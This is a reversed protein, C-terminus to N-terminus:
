VGAPDHNQLVIPGLVGKLLHVDLRKALRAAPPNHRTLVEGNVGLSTCHHDSGDLLLLEDVNQVAVGRGPQGDGRGQLRVLAVGQDIRHDAHVDAELIGEKGGDLEAILLDVLVGMRLRRGLHQCQVLHIKAEIMDRPLKSVCNIVARVSEDRHRSSHVPRTTHENAALVAEDVLLLTVWVHHTGDGASQLHGLLFAQEDHGM